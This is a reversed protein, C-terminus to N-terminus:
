QRKWLRALAEAADNLAREKQIRPSETRSRLPRTRELLAAAATRSRSDDSDVVTLAAEFIRQADSTLPKAPTSMHHNSTQKLIEVICAIHSLASPCTRLPAERLHHESRASWAISVFLGANGPRTFAPKLLHQSKGYSACYRQVTCAEIPDKSSKSGIFPLSAVLGPSPAKELVIDSWTSL